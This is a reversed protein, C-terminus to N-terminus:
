VECGDRRLASREWERWRRAIPRSPIGTSISIPYGTEDRSVAGPRSCGSLDGIWETHEGQTFIRDAFWGGILAGAAGLLVAFVLYLHWRRRLALVGALGRLSGIALSGLDIM